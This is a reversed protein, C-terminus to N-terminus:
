FSRYCELTPAIGRGSGNFDKMWCLGEGGRKEVREDGWLLEHFCKHLVKSRVNHVLKSLFISPVTYATCEADTLQRPQSSLVSVHYLSCIYLNHQLNDLYSVQLAYDSVEWSLLPYIFGFLANRLIWLKCWNYMAVRFWVGQWIAACGGGLLRCNLPYQWLKERGAFPISYNGSSCEVPTNITEM